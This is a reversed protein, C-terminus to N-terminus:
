GYTRWQDFCQIPFKKHHELAKDFGGRQEFVESLYQHCRAQENRMEVNAALELAKSLEKEADDLNNQALYVQGLDVLVYIKGIDHGYQDFLLSAETFKEQAYSYNGMAAHIEGITTIVTIEDRKLGAVQALHLSKEALELAALFEKSEIM